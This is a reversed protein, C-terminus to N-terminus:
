KAASLFLSALVGEDYRRFTVSGIALLMQNGSPAWVCEAQLVRLVEARALECEQGQSIFLYANRLISASYENFHLLSAQYCQFSCFNM